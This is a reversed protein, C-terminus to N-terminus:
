RLVHLGNGHRTGRLVLLVRQMHLLGVLRLMNRISDAFGPPMAGGERSLVTVADLLRNRCDQIDWPSATAQARWGQARDDDSGEVESPPAGKTVPCEWKPSGSSEFIGWGGM